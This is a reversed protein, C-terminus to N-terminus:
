KLQIGNIDIGSVNQVANNFEIGNAEAWEDFEMIDDFSPSDCVTSIARPLPLRVEWCEEIEDFTALREVLAKCAPSM